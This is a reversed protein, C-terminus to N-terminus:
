LRRLLREHLELGLMFLLGVFEVEATNSEVVGVFLAIAQAVRAFGQASAVRQRFVELVGKQLGKLLAINLDGSELSFKDAAVRRNSRVGSCKIVPVRGDARILGCESFAVDGESVAVGSESLSIGGKSYALCREDFAVGRSGSLIPLKDLKLSVDNAQFADDLEELELRASYTHGPGRDLDGRSAM